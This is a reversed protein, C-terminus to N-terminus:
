REPVLQLAAEGPERIAETLRLCGHNTIVHLLSDGERYSVLDRLDLDVGRIAVTGNAFQKSVDRISVLPRASTAGAAAATTM